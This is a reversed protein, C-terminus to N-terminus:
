LRSNDMRFHINGKMYRVNNKYVELCKLQFSTENSTKKNILPKEKKKKSKGKSWVTPDRPDVLKLPLIPANIPNGNEDRNAPFDKHKVIETENRRGYALDGEYVGTRPSLDILRQGKM